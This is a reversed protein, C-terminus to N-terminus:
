KRKLGILYTEFSESRCAKPKFGRATGFWARMEALLASENGGQFIKAVFSGNQKLGERAYEIAAEVLAASRLTDVMANGSTNPAADSIVLDYPGNDLITKRVDPDYLDGRLFLHNQGQDNIDIQSLDVATLFGSGKLKKLAYLSWSGPAAGLDLVRLGPRFFRFKEDMEMLKYVSRAPYGEDKAKKAWFDPKEYTAM